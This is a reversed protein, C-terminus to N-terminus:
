KKFYLKLLCPNDDETLSNLKKCDSESLFQKFNDYNNPNLTIIMYDDAFIHSDTNICWDEEGFVLYKGDSKRYFINKDYKYQFRLCVYYYDMIQAQKVILYPVTGDQMYRWFADYEKVYNEDQYTLDLDYMDFNDDGFDWQYLLDLSDKGVIYVRRYQKLKEYYYLANQYEYFDGDQLFRTGYCYSNVIEMTEPNLIIICDSQSSSPITWAVMYDDIYHLSQYDNGDPYKISAIYKGDLSYNHFSGMPEVLQIVENKKDISVSALWSYEGPGQGKRGVQCIFDGEHNFALAKISRIDYVYFNGKYEDVETVRALLSSDTTELPIIEASSFVDEYTLTSHKLNVKLTLCGNNDHKHNCSLLLFSIFLFLLNNKM